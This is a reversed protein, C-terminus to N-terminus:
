LPTKRNGTAELIVVESKRASILPVNHLMEVVVM